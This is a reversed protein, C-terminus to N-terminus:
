FTGIWGVYHRKPMSFMGPDVAALPRFRSIVMIYEM